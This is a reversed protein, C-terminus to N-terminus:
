TSMDPPATIAPSQPPQRGDPVPAGLVGPPRHCGARSRKASGYLFLGARGRTAHGGGPRDPGRSGSSSHKGEPRIGYRRLWGVLAHGRPRTSRGLAAFWRGAESWREVVSLEAQVRDRRHGRSRGPGVPVVSGACGDLGPDLRRRRHVALPHRLPWRSHFLSDLDCDELDAFVTVGPARNTVARCRRPLRGGASRHQGALRVPGPLPVTVPVGEGSSRAHPSARGDM